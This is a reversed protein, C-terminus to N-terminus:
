DAQGAFPCLKFYNSRILLDSIEWSLQKRRILEENQRNGIVEGTRSITCDDQASFVSAGLGAFAYDAVGMLELLSPYIDIQGIVEGESQPRVPSNAIILPIFRDSPEVQQRGEFENFTLDEHDGTIVIISNQYIGAQKLKEIFIGIQKDTYQIAALYYGAEKNAAAGAILNPNKNLCNSDEYPCHSSITVVQLYFPQQLEQLRNSTATFLQEDTLNKASGALEFKDYLKTFGYSNSTTRQNWFDSADSIFNYSQYGKGALAKPLSYFENTGYIGAAAGSRIPLLGTNIMLQADSSRGDKTQPVVHPFYVASDERILRNMFPTVEEGEIELGVPWSALSEVLIIILNKEHSVAPSLEHKLAAKTDIFRKIREIEEPTCEKHSDIDYKLLNFVGFHKLLLIRNYGCGSYDKRVAQFQVCLAFLILVSLSIWEKRSFAPETKQGSLLYYAITMLLGPLVILLDRFRISALISPLLGDLNNVMLFSTYPMVTGFNRYYWVNSLLYSIFLFLYIFFFVKRKRNFFCFPLALLFADSLSRIHSIILSSFRYSESDMDVYFFSYTIRLTLYITFVALLYSILKQRKM